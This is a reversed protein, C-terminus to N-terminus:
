SISTLIFICATFTLLIACKLFNSFYRRGYVFSHTSPGSNLSISAVSSSNTGSTIAAIMSRPMPVPLLVNM